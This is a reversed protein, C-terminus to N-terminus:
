LEVSFQKKGDWGSIQAANLTFQDLSRCQRHGGINTYFPCLTKQPIELLHGHMNHLMKM